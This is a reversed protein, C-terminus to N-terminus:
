MDNIHKLEIRKILDLLQPTRTKSLSKKTVKLETYRALSGFLWLYVVLHFRDRDAVGNLTSVWGCRLKVWDLGGSFQQWIEIFVVRIHCGLEFNRHSWTVNWVDIEIAGNVRTSHVSHIGLSNSFGVFCAFHSKEGGAFVLAWGWCRLNAVAGWDSYM